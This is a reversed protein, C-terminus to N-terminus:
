LRADAWGEGWDDVPSGIPGEQNGGATRGKEEPSVVARVVLRGEGVKRCEVKKGYRKATSHCHSRFNDLGTQFDVGEVFTRAKGDLLEDWRRHIANKEPFDEEWDEPM